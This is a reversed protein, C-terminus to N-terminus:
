TRLLRDQVLLAARLVGGPRSRRFLLLHHCHAASAPRRCASRRESSYYFFLTLRRQKRVMMKDKVQNPSTRITESKLYNSSCLNNPGLKLLKSGNLASVFIIASDHLLLQRDVRRGAGHMSIPVDYKHALNFLYTDPYNIVRVHLVHLAIYKLKIHKGM